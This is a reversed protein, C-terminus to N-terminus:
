NRPDIQKKVAKTPQSFAYDIKSLAVLNEDKKLEPNRDLVRKFTRAMERKESNTDGSKRIEYLENLMEKKIAEDKTAVYSECMSNLCPELMIPHEEMLKKKTDFNTKKEADSLSNIDEAANISTARESKVATERTAVDREQQDLRAKTEALKANIQQEKQEIAKQAEALEASKKENEALGAKVKESMRIEALEEATFMAKLKDASIDVGNAFL